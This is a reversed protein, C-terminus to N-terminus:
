YLHPPIIPERCNVVMIETATYDAGPVSLTLYLLTKPGGGVVLGGRVVLGGGGLSSGPSVFPRVSGVIHRWVAARCGFQHGHM